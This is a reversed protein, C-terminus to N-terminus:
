YFLCEKKFVLAKNVKRLIVTKPFQIWNICKVLIIASAGILKLKVKSVCWHPGKLTFAWTRKLALITKLHVNLEKGSKILIRLGSCLMVPTIYKLGDKRVIAAHWRKFGNGRNALFSLWIHNSIAFCMRKTLDRTYIPSLIHLNHSKVSGKSTIGWLRWYCLWKIARIWCLVYIYKFGKSFYPKPGIRKITSKSPSLIM